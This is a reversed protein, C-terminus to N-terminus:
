EKESSKLRLKLLSYVGLAAIGLVVTEFMTDIGRFDALILNVVNKGKALIYANEGYFDSTQTQIPEYLVKLAIISLIAGFGLAVVIDRYQQKASALNLFGPLKYLVLVFLVTSLTDITFQTMALDPASYFVYMLCICYGIVSMSVVATLRSPTTVVILLAGLLIIVVAVEYITLPTLNDFDIQIPGSMWLKYILLGEAFLIIKLHYSRLYGNHFKGTYWTSFRIIDNSYGTLISQSSISQFKELFSVKKESPKNFIYLLIGLGLTVLSLILVTNFSGHWIALKLNTETGFISNATALSMWKGIFGPFLGFLLGLTGLILPPIWMSKYPLHLKSYEQPLEGAFPKWGAMFGAAVLCTNTIVALITLILMLNEKSHLTAEYILDKGIFGFTGPLGASSLAALIGAIAVPMLVKRLGALKTIDRTGTEHDIIGTVLFLTAKYLAHVLIFVAAAIIAEQTGVGLLFVLIGLASITTYALISKLDIRFLSHIAAYLMTFGGVIMLPYSWLDTGGLSPFFRALLYIGAKVMTASHLYASVPTPAKMAGPLWFHFPFQASKTFAGLFIFLLILPYFENNIIRDKYQILESIQYTGAVNGLLILGALLFFGGMGTITLATMASKRSDKNDNNFGILFFSSISTLEWFIFLLLMNDSLVLGMMATMFLFLYGFFRDFYPHGKLYTRAYFFIGTGIGTILLMFLMSLGDLRFDFNVGLTPVWEIQQIFSAGSAIKPIFGLYYAFIGTPILPLLISWKSKLRSGFPILLIASFLGLLITFLM